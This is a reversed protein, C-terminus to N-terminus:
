TTILSFMARHPWSSEELMTTTFVGTGWPRLCGFTLRIVRGSRRQFVYLGGGCSSFPRTKKRRKSKKISKRQNKCKHSHLYFLSPVVHPCEPSEKITPYNRPNLFSWSCTFNLMGGLRVLLCTNIVM